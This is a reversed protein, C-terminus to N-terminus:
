FEDHSQRLESSIVCAKKENRPAPPMLATEARALPISLGRDWERNVQLVATSHAHIM